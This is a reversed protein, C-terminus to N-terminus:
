ESITKSLKDAIALARNAEANATDSKLNLIAAEESAKVAELSKEQALTTLQEITSKFASLISDVSKPKIFTMGIKEQNAM